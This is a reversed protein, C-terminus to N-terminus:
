VQIKFFSAAINSQRGEVKFGIFSIPNTKMALHVSENGYILCAACITLGLEPSVDMMKRPVFNMFLHRERFSGIEHM